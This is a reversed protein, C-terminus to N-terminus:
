LNYSTPWDYSYVQFHYGESTETTKVFDGSVPLKGVKPVRLHERLRGAGPLYWVPRLPVVRTCCASPHDPPSAKQTRTGHQLVTPQKDVGMATSHPKTVTAENCIM